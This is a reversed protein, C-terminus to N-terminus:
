KNVSFSDLARGGLQLSYLSDINNIYLPQGDTLHALVLQTDQAFLGRRSGVELETITEGQLLKGKEGEFILVGEDGYVELTRNSVSFVEGKGYTVTVAVQNKFKLQAQCWCSHFYGASPANWFRGECYVQDVEGFINTFRNFRSQAAMLPFGYDHHNYTWYPTFKPKALITTYRALFPNGILHLNDVLARHVGSLIEIHEIHLLKRKVKALNILEPAEAPQITLPYEVIVHKDALLAERVITGHLYNVNSICVLDISQNKILDQWSYIHHIGHTQAFDKTKDPTNGSVAVLETHPSENFAEARRAAAYGTGIIGVKLPLERINYDQNM